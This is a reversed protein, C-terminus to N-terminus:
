IPFATKVNKQGEDLVVKIVSAPSGDSKFGIVQQADFIKEKPGVLTGFEWADLILDILNIKDRFISSKNALSRLRAISGIKHPIHPNM